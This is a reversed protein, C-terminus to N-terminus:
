IKMQITVYYNRASSPIIGPGPYGTARRTFYMENTLNNLGTELQFLKYSWKLSIDMISYAPIIGNVANAQQQSNTADSFHSKTFSYQYSLSFSKYAITLGTKFNFPPVLEVKKNNFAPEESDIYRADIVSANIFPRLSFSSTDSFVFKWLDAEIMAEVGKTISSSINTRYQYTTYWTPDVQITTGIRNAYSLMFVSVDYNLKNIIQGRIGLDINFGKEDQLNPDIKFNANQIQMDTFNISRYNQSFNAYFEVTDNFKYNIGIGGILFSRKNEKLDTYNTDFVVDGALNFIMERFTGDAKTNIYEFRVGPTISLKENINFINEAFLSINKSPFEYSSGEVNTPNLYYFDPGIGNTSLGQKSLNYGQYYRAGVLLAWPMDNVSYINLFRTENGFNRFEGWILDREELPDIRNIQGLFGLAKRSAHLGFFRSNLKTSSNFEHDFHFAALNWDVQFWNRDRISVAPEQEFQLDTLGGPQQATYSMKTLELRISNAENLHRRVNIGATQVNFGSNPRWDDGSKNQYYAYYNLRKNDGGLSVFTNKLNFSGISQRATLELKKYKPGTNLVFNLLGGFQTGFQLSAAGRILQIEKIAETPPTYYSEPYGLADASIDYGNQRTNFNSTRSPNLGRGGIGLQIGAGDSEWINLGPVKSYIQRGSNTAKNANVGEMVIVENKKGQTIMLGEIARMRRSFDISDYKDKIVLEDLIYQSDNFKYNLKVEPKDLIVKSLVAQYGSQQFIVTYEGYPLKETKFFGQENTYYAKNAEKIIVSCFSVTSAIEGQKVVGFVVGKNQGLFYCPTFLLLFLMNNM